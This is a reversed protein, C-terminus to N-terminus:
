ARHQLLANSFSMEHSCLSSIISYQTHQEPQTTSCWEGHLEWDACAARADGADIAARVAANSDFLSLVPRACLAAGLQELQEATLDGNSGPLLSVCLSLCLTFNITIRKALFGLSLCWACSEVDLSLCANPQLYLVQCTHQLLTSRWQVILALM